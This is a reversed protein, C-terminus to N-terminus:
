RDVKRTLGAQELLIPLVWLVLLILLAPWAWFFLAMRSAAKFAGEEWPSPDWMFLVLLLGVVLTLASGFFYLGLLDSM